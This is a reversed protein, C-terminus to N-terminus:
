EEFIVLPELVVMESITPLDDSSRFDKESLAVPEIGDAETCRLKEIEKEFAIKSEMDKLRLRGDELFIPAGNGDVEAYAAIAKSEEALYFDVEQEVVKRLKALERMKPYSALRRDCLHKLPENAALIDKITM